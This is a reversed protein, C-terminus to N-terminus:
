LTSWMMYYGDEMPSTYYDKKITVIEFGLKKYFDIAIINSKRVELTITSAEEKIKNIL